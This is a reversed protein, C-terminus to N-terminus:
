MESSAAILNYTSIPEGLKRRYYGDRQIALRIENSIAAVKSKKKRWKGTETSPIPMGKPVVLLSGKGNLYVEFMAAELWLTPTYRQSAATSDGLFL